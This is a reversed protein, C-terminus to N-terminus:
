LVILSNSFLSAYPKGLTLYKLIFGLWGWRDWSAFHTTDFKGQRRASYSIFLFPRCSKFAYGYGEAVTAWYFIFRFGFSLSLFIERAVLFGRVADIGLGLRVNSAGRVLQQGLDLLAGIFAALVAAYTYLSVM